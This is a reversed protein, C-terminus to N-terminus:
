MWRLVVTMSCMWLTVALGKSTAPV